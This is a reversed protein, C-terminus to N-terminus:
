TKKIYKKSIDTYGKIIIKDIKRKKSVNVVLEAQIKSGKLILNTLGVKTFSNGIEEFNHSVEDLFHVTNITSLEIITPSIVNLPTKIKSLDITTKSIDIQITDIKEFLIFSATTTENVDRIEYYNNIYGQLSLNKSISDLYDILQNKSNFM